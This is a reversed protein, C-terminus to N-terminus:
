KVLAKRSCSPQVGLWYLFFALRYYEWIYEWRKGKPLRRIKDLEAKLSFVADNRM